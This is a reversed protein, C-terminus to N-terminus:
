KLYVEWVFAAAYPVSDLITSPVLEVITNGVNVDHLSQVYYSPGPIPGKRFYIEIINRVPTWLERSVYLKRAFDNPPLIIGLM